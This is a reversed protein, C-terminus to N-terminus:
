NNGREKSFDNHLLRYPSLGPLNVVAARGDADALPLPGCIQSSINILGCQDSLVAQRSADHM